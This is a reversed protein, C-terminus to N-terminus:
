LASGEKDSCQEIAFVRLTMWAWTPLMIVDSAGGFFIACYSNSYGTECSPSPGYFERVIITQNEPDDTWMNPSDCNSIVSEGVWENVKSEIYSKWEGLHDAAYKGLDLIVEAGVTKAVEAIFSQVHPNKLIGCSGTSTAAIAAAAAVFYRRSIATM